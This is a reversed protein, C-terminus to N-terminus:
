LARRYRVSPAHWGEGENGPGAPDEAWGHRAYFARGHENAAFVWLTAETFGLARLRELARAHLASGLGAGQAPPDVYLSDLVGTAPGADPDRSPGVRLYGAIRGAVEAVWTEFAPDTLFAEWRPRQTELDREALVRPDLVDEYAHWWARVSVGAIAEADAGVARRLAVAGSV